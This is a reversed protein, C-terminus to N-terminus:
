RRWYGRHRIAYGRWSQVWPAPQTYQQPVTVWNTPNSQTPSVGGPFNPGRDSGPSPFAPGLNSGSQANVALPSIAALVLATRLSKIIADSM